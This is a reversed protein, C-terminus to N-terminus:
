PHARHVPCHVLPEAFRREASFRPVRALPSIPEAMRGLAQDLRKLLTEGLRAALPARPADALQGICKLGLRDLTAVAEGDLRLASLPLSALADLIDEDAVFGGGHRALAFAAGPTPAVAAMAAFGARSLRTVLDAVLAEEGGFLYACGTIDLFLGHPPDLAVLPTYRVCWRAIDNVLAADAAPDDEAVRLGPLMARADALAMGPIFGARAAADNLAALRLANAMKVVTVLPATHLADDPAPNPQAQVRRRGRVIRDTSLRPLWLALIRPCSSSVPSM